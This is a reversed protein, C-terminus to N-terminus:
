VVLGHCALLPIESALLFLNMPLLVTPELTPLRALLRDIGFFSSCVHCVSYISPISYSDKALTHHREDPKLWINGTGLRVIM